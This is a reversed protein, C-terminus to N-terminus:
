ARRGGAMAALEPDSRVLRLIADMGADHRDDGLREALARVFALDAATDVTWRLEGLDEPECVLGASPWREPRGRVGATVHEREAADTSEADAAHLAAASIVEVDLGDPYTRPEVNSAYACGPTREFLEIVADVIGPDVLPCDATIRVIPGAHGAAAGAFRGLVDDLSGRYAGHGLSRALAAIADDDDRASTAVRIEAVNRARALRRLLLALMPEGCVDALVKGPLRTSSMRAQVIALATM